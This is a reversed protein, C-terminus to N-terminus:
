HLMVEVQYGDSLRSYIHDPMDPLAICCVVGAQGSLEGEPCDTALCGEWDYDKSDMHIRVHFTAHAYVKEASDESFRAVIWKGQHPVLDLLQQGRSVFEDASVKVREIMGSDSALVVCQGLELEALELAARLTEYRSAAIRQQSLLDALRTEVEKFSTEYRQYVSRVSEMEQQAAVYMEYAVQQKQFLDEYRYYTQEKDELINRISDTQLRHREFLATQEYVAEDALQKIEVGTNFESLAKRVAVRYVSDQLIILTDGRNVNMGRQCFIQAVRGDVVTQQPIMRCVIHAELAAEPKGTFWFLCGVAVGVVLVIIVTYVPLKRRLKGIQHKDQEM